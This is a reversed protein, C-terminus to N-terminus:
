NVLLSKKILNIPSARVVLLEQKQHVVVAFVVIAAAM